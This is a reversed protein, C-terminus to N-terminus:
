CPDLIPKAEDWEKEWGIRKRSFQFPGEPSGGLIGPLGEKRM